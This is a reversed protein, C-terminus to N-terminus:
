PRVVQARRKPEGRVGRAPVRNASREAIRGAIYEADREVGHIMTSSLASQFHLGVFYLGPVDPVVGREHRPELDGHVPLDMWSAFGTKYGTCWVVNAVDL